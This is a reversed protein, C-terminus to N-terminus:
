GILTFGDPIPYINGKQWTPRVSYSSGSNDSRVSPRWTIGPTHSIHPHLGLSPDIGGGWSGNKGFWLSGEDADWAFMMRNSTGSLTDPDTEANDIANAVVITSNGRWLARDTGASNTLGLMIDNTVTGTILIEWYWKGTAFGRSGPALSVASGTRTALLNFESLTFGSTTNVPDFTLPAPVRGVLAEGPYGRGVRDSLQYIRVATYDVDGPSGYDSSQMAATYTYETDTLGSVTRLLSGYGETWFELDYEETTEDLPVDIGNIWEATKRARRTWFLNINGTSSQKASGIQVPSYPKMSVGDFSETDTRAGSLSGGITVGKFLIETGVAAVPILGRGIQPSELIVFWAGSRHAKIAWETGRRGRLFDQIQFTGDGNDTPTYFQAIEWEDEDGIAVANAGTYFADLSVPAEPAVDPDVFKVTIVSHNDWIGATVDSRMFGSIIRGIKASSRLPTLGSWTVGGDRSNYVVAGSWNSNTGAAGLYIGEDDHSDLLLPIDLVALTTAGGIDLTITEGPEDVTGVAYSTLAGEDDSAAECRLVGTPELHTRTLRIRSEDPLTVIDTPDLKHWEPGLSFKFTEREIWAQRMLNDNVQAAEESTFVIPLEVFVEQKAQGTLRRQQVTAPLYDTTQNSYGITLVVPLETELSRTSVWIDAAEDEVGGSRAAMESTELSAVSAGGRKVFKVTASSEIGDFGYAMALPELAQRATMPRARIYGRVVDSALDTVNTDTLDVKGCIEEVVESLAM